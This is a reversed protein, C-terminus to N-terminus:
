GSGQIKRKDGSGRGYKKIYKSKGRRKGEGQWRPGYGQLLCYYHTFDTITRDTEKKTIQLPCNCISLSTIGVVICVKCLLIVELKFSNWSLPHLMHNLM